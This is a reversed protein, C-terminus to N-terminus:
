LCVLANMSLARVGSWARRLNTPFSGSVRHGALERRCSLPRPRASLNGMDVSVAPACPRANSKCCGGLFTELSADLSGQNSLTRWGSHTTQRSVESVAGGRGTRQQVLLFGAPEPPHDDHRTEICPLAAQQVQGSARGRAQSVSSSSAFCRRAHPTDGAATDKKKRELRCMPHGVLWAGGGGPPTLNMGVMPMMLITPAQQCPGHWQGSLQEALQPPKPQSSFSLADAALDARNRYPPPSRLRQCM